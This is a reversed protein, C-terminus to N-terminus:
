YPNKGLSDTSHFLLKLLLVRTDSAGLQHHSYNRIFLPKSLGPHWLSRFRINQLLPSVSRTIVRTVAKTYSM